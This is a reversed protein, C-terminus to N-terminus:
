PYWLFLPSLLSCPDHLYTILCHTILFFCVSFVFFFHSICFFSRKVQGARFHIIM